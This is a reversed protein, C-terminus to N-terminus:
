RNWDQAANLDRKNTEGALMACAATILSAVVIMVSIPWSAGGAWAVLSTAIAPTLGGVIGTLQSGLSVGTYRVDTSFMESLYAPQISYMAGVLGSYAIILALYIAGIRATDLLWFFPYAFFCAGIAGILFVARRGIHDSLLGWLPFSAIGVAAALMVGM